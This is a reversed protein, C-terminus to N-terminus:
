FWRVLLSFKFNNCLKESTKLYWMYIYNQCSLSVTKIMNSPPFSTNKHRIPTEMTKVSITSLVYTHKFFLQINIPCQGNYRSKTFKMDYSLFPFLYFLITKEGVMKKRSSEAIYWLAVNVVLWLCRHSRYVTVIIRFVNCISFGTCPLDINVWWESLSSNM